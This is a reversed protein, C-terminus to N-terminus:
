VDGLSVDQLSWHADQLSWHAPPITRSSGQSPAPLVSTVTTSLLSPHAGYHLGSSDSPNMLQETSNQCIVASPPGWGRELM